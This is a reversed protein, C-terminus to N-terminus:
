SSSADLNEARSARNARRDKLEDFKSSISTGNVASGKAAVARAKPSMQLSEMAQLLLPGFKALTATNGNDITDAYKIILGAIGTDSPVLTIERLSNACIKAMKGTISLLFSMEGEPDGTDVM